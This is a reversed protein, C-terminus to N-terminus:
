KPQMTVSTLDYRPNWKRMQTTFVYKKILAFRFSSLSHDAKLIQSFHIPSHILSTFSLLSHFSRILFSRIIPSLSHSFSFFPILLIYFHSFQFLLFSTSLFLSDYMTCAKLLELSFVDNLKLWWIRHIMQKLFFIFWTKEFSLKKKIGVESKKNSNRKKRIGNRKITERHIGLM